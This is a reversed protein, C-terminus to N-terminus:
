MHPNPSLTMDMHFASPMLSPLNQHSLLLTTDFLDPLIAMMITLGYTPLHATM